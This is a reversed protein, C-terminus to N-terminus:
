RMGTRMAKICLSFSDRDEDSRKPSAADGASDITLAELSVEGEEIISNNEAAGSTGPQPIESPRKGYASVRPIKNPAKGAPSPTFSASCSCKDYGLKSKDNKASKV